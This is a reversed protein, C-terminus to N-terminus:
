SKLIRKLLKDIKQYLEEVAGSNEIKYDAMKFLTKFDFEKWETKEQKLFEEYTKPDGTRGRALVRQFRIKPDATLHVIRAKGPFKERLFDVESPERIGSIVIKEKKFKKVTRQMLANKGEKKRIEAALKQLNERIPPLGREAAEGRLIDSITHREFGHKEALYRAFTDKGASIDAVLGIIIKVM